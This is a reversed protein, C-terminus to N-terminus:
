GAVRNRVQDSDVLIEIGVDTKKLDDRLHSIDVVDRIDFKFDVYAQAYSLNRLSISDRNTIFNRTEQSNATDQSPNTLFLNIIAHLITGDLTFRVFEVFTFAENEFPKTKADLYAMASDEDKRLMEYVWRMIMARPDTIDMWIGKAEEIQRILAQGQPGIDPNDKVEQLTDDIDASIEKVTIRSNGVNGSVCNAPDLACKSFDKLIKGVNSM